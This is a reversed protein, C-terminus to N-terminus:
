GFCDALGHGSAGWTQTLRRIRAGDLQGNTARSGTDFDAGLFAPLQVLPEYEEYNEARLGGALLFPRELGQAVAYSERPGLSLGTSGIRGSHVRDLLFASVDCRQYGAIFRDELCRLGAFHLVKVVQISPALMRLEAVVRPPQFAHLQVWGIKAVSAIEAISVADGLFTVMMPSLGLTVARASLRCFQRLSLNSKGGPVGFWLGVMDVGSEALLELEADTTIGCIKILPSRNRTQIAVTTM